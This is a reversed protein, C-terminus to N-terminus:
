GSCPAGPPRRRRPSAARAPSGGAAATVLWTIVGVIVFWVALAAQWRTSRVRQRLDLATVTRIGHGSPGRGPPPPTSPTGATAPSTTTM